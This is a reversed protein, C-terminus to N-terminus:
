YRRLVKMTGELYGRNIYSSHFGWLVEIGLVVRRTGELYRELVKKTGEIWTLLTSGGFYRTEIGLIVPVKKCFQTNQTHIFTTSLTTCSGEKWSIIENLSPLLTESYNSYAMKVNVLNYFMYIYCLGERQLPLIFFIEITICNKLDNIGSTDKARTRTRMGTGSESEDDERVHAPTFYHSMKIAWVLTPGPSSLANGQFKHILKLVSYSDTDPTPLRSDHTPFWSDVTPQRSEPVAMVWDTRPPGRIEEPGFKPGSKAHRFHGGSLKHHLTRCVLTRALGPIFSKAM